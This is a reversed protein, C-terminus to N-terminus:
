VEHGGLWESVTPGVGKFDYYINNSMLLFSTNSTNFGQSRIQSWPM